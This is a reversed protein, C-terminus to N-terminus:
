VANQNSFSTACTFAEVWIIKLLKQNKVNERKREAPPTV